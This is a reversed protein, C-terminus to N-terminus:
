ENFFEKLRHQRVSVLLAWIPQNFRIQVGHGYAADLRRQTDLLWGEPNADPPLLDLMHAGTLFSAAVHPLNAIDTFRALEDLMITPSYRGCELRPFPDDIERAQAMALFDVSVVEGDDEILANKKVADMM